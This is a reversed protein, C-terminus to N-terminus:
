LALLNEHFRRISFIIASESGDDFEADKPVRFIKSFTLYVKKFKQVIKFFFKKFIKFNQFKFNQFKRLPSLTNAFNLKYEFYLIFKRGLLIFILWCIIFM